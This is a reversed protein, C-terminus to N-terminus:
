GGGGGEIEESGCCHGGGGGKGEGRGLLGVGGYSDGGGATKKVVATTGARAPVKGIKEGSGCCHRSWCSDERYKGVAGATVAGAPASDIEGSGCYHGSGCSSEGNRGM